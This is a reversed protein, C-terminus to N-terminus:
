HVRARGVTRRPTAASRAGRITVESGTNFAGLYIGGGNTNSGSSTVKNGTVRSDTLTLRKFGQIGGGLDVGENGSVTTDTLTLSGTSVIGGGGGNIGNGAKNNSV